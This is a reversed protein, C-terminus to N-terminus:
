GFSSDACCDTGVTKRIVVLSSSAEGTNGVIDKVPNGTDETVWITQGNRGPLAQRATIAVIERGRPTQM